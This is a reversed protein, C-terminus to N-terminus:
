PVYAALLGKGEAPLRRLTICGNETQFSTIPGLVFLNLGSNWRATGNGIQQATFSISPLDSFKGPRVVCYGVPHLHPEQPHPILHWLFPGEGDPSAIRIAIIRDPHTDKGNAFFIHPYGDPNSSNRQFRTVTFSTTTEILSM